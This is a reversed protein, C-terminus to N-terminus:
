DADCNTIVVQQVIDRVDAGTDAGPTPKYIAPKTNM